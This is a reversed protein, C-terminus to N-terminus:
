RPVLKQQFPQGDQIRSTTMAGVQSGLMYNFGYKRGAPGFRFCHMFPIRGGSGSTSGYGGATGPITKGGSTITFSENFGWLVFDDDFTIYWTGSATFTGPYPGAATGSATFSANVRLPAACHRGRTVVVNTASFTEGTPGAATRLFTVPRAGRASQPQSSAGIGPVTAVQVSAACASILM